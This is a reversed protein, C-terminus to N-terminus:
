ARLGGASRAVAEPARARARAIPEVKRQKEYLFSLVEHRYHTYRADDALELRDRPRASGPRAM